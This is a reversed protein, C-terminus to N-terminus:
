VTFKVRCATKSAHRKKDKVVRPKFRGDYAGQSLMIDRKIKGMNVVPKKKNKTM